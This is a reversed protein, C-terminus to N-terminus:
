RAAPPANAEDFLDNLYAALRVGGQALRRKVTPKHRFAYDYTLEPKEPYITERVQASETIWVIPNVVWWDIVQSSSTHRGLREAWESFSLQEDDVLASDWVAHLNTERGFWSVKVENGGRDGPRGVHLPQHLDGVLHVIFRLALQRDARSTAPDLLMARFKRLASQADGEPPPQDYTFGGVTVYHWPSATKRWFPSPDSKMEDPWYAAEDLSEVGLIERVHARALGSLHRDAVAAIVRHGTRGWAFAPSPITIAALAAAVLTLRVSQLKM